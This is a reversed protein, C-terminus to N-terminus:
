EMAEAYEHYNFPLKILSEFERGADYCDEDGEEFHWNVKIDKVNANEKLIMFILYIQKESSTNIYDLRISFNIKECTCDKVWQLLPKYFGIPDCPLSRGMLMLEGTPDFEVRPTGKSEEIFLRNM